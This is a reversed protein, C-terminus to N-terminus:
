ALLEDLTARCAAADGSALAQMAREVLAQQRATVALPIGAVPPQPVLASAIAEMLDELGTACLSSVRLARDPLEAGWADPLDAKHAVLIADPWDDLAARDEVLPCQSVDIVLLRCDAAAFRRRALTIGEAELGEAADRVGATDSLRVPWGQFAAEGTVVDRTTGPEDFVISRTYGLLRNMLSSKGVNPRGGLVVSWPETLHLGFRSWGAIQQLRDLLETRAGGPPEVAAVSDRLAAFGARWTGSMQDLLIEATRATKAESLAQSLEVDAVGARRSELEQWPVTECGRARLQDLIRRVAADGGHCHVETSEPGTRCLVVEEGPAAGWRGFVIRNCEQEAAPKGNAACFLPLEGRDLLRCDGVIWVVAM